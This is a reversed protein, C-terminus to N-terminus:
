KRSSFKRYVWIEMVADKAINISLWSHPDTNSYLEGNTATSMTDLTVWFANGQDASVDVTVSGSGKAYVTFGSCFTGLQIPDTRTVVAATGDYIKKQEWTKDHFTALSSPFRRGELYFTGRDGIQGGAM